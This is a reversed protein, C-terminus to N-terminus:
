TKNTRFKQTGNDADVDGSLLVLYRISTNTRLLLLSPACDLMPLRCYFHMKHCSISPAVYFTVYRRSVAAYVMVSM